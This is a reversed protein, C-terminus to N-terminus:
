FGVVLALDVVLDVNSSAVKTREEKLHIFYPGADGLLFVHPLVRLELGAFAGTALGSARYPTNSQKANAAAAEFGGFFTPRGRGFFRYGRLGYLHSKTDNTDGAAGTQARAEVMWRGNIRWDLQGGGLNVGAAIRYPADAASLPGLLLLAATFLATKRM